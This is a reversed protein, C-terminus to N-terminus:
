KREEKIWKLDTKIIEIDTKLTSLQESNEVFRQAYGNHEDLKSEITSLRDDTKQDENDYRDERQDDTKQDLRAREADQKKGNYHAIILQAFIGSAATILAVIIAETM